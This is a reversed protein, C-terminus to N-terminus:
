LTWLRRRINQWWTLPETTPQARRETAPQPVACVRHGRPYVTPTHDSARNLIRGCNHCTQVRTLTDIQIVTRTPDYPHCNTCESANGVVLHADWEHWPAPQLRVFVLQWPDETRYTVTSPSMSDIRTLVHSDGNQCVITHGALQIARHESIMIKRQNNSLRQVQSFANNRLISVRYNGYHRIVICDNSWRQRGLARAMCKCLLLCWM